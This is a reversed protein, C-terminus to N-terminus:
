LDISFDFLSRKAETFMASKPAICLLFCIGLAGRLASKASYNSIYKRVYLLFISEQETPKHVVICIYIIYVCVFVCM